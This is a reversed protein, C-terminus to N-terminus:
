YKVIDEVKFTSSVVFLEGTKRDKLITQLIFNKDDSWVIEGQLAEFKKSLKNM